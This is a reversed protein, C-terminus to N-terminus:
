YMSQIVLKSGKYPIHSLKEQFWPQLLHCLLFAFMSPLATEVMDLM